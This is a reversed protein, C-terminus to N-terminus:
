SSNVHESPRSVTLSTSALLNLTKKDPPEAIKHGPWPQLALPPLGPSGTVGGKELGKKLLCGVVLSSFLM